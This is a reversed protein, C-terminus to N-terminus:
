LSPGSYRDRENEFERSRYNAVNRKSMEEARKLREEFSLKEVEKKANDIVEDLRSNFGRAQLSFQNKARQLSEKHAQTLGRPVFDKILGLVEKVKGLANMLSVDQFVLKVKKFLEEYSNAKESLGRNRLILDDIGDYGIEKAFALDMEIGSLDLQPLDKKINEIEEQIDIKMTNIIDAKVNGLQKLEEKQQETQRHTQFFEKVIEERREKAEEIGTQIWDLEDKKDEIEQKLDDLEKQLNKYEHMDKINNTGVLKRVVGVRKFVQEINKIEKDRFEKLLYRGTQTYGENALAKKFSPKLKLGNKYGSAVPVVNFHLHPSGAEDLHVVANYVYLNSHRKEFDLLYDRLLKGAVERNNEPMSDWDEKSGISVIFERQLDLTKSKKVHHYFDDIKRDSRKQNANYDKLAQGFIDDYVEKLNEQRIYINQNIKTQDIHRHAPELFEEETLERNNHKLSTMKSSTKFSISLEM